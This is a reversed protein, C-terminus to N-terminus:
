AGWFDTFGFKVRRSAAPLADAARVTLHVVRPDSPYFLNGLAATNFVRRDIARHPAEGLYTVSLQDIWLHGYTKNLEIRLRSSVTGKPIEYKGGFGNWGNKGFVDSVTIAGTAVGKADVCELTVVGDFSSDPSYLDPRIGGTRAQKTVAAVDDKGKQTLAREADNVPMKHAGADGHRLLYLEM